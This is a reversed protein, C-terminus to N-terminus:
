CPSNTAASVIPTSEPSHMEMVIDEFSNMSHILDLVLDVKSIIQTPIGTNRRYRKKVLTSTQSVRLCACQYKLREGIM